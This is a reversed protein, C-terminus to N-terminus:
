MVTAIIEDQEGQQQEEDDTLDGGSSIIVPEWVPGVQLIDPADFISTFAGFLEVVQVCVHVVVTKKPRDERQIWVAQETGHIGYVYVCEADDGAGNGCQKATEEVHIDAHSWAVVEM